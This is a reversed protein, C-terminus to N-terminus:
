NENVAWLETSATWACNSGLGPLVCAPFIFEEVGRAM